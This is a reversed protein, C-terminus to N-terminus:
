SQGKMNTAATLALDAGSVVKFPVDQVGGFWRNRIVQLPVPAVDLKACVRCKLTTCRNIDLETTPMADSPPNYREAGEAKSIMRPHVKNYGLTASHLLAHLVIVELPHTSRVASGEGLCLFWEPKNGPGKDVAEVGPPCGHELVDFEISYVDRGSDKRTRWFSMDVWEGNTGAQLMVEREFALLGISTDPWSSLIAGWLAEDPFILSARPHAGMLYGAVPLTYRHGVGFPHDKTPVNSLQQKRARPM